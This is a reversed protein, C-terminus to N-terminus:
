LRRLALRAAHLGCMGHVGAGPPTSASCLYLGKCPTAWPHPSLTPRAVFQRWDIVGGTIDGGVYNPNDAEIAAPAMVHRALVVDRFGPAFREIQAEIRETMDVTSRAPVHCYAWLTHRGPPARTPDFLTPQAVLVFPADPHHGRAVAGEAAAVEAFTGGVHVTAARAVAPDTWPVPEALAYDLKFAGPGHRFQMLRRRYRAPLRDGAMAALHRPAVDALVVPSPPLTGLDDVRHDCVVEGGHEGLIAVLADTIAQSGGEALPWGVLHALAGLTLGFGATLPRDFALFSHGALGAFLAAAEPTDFRARALASASRAGAFGFRTLGLPHRPVSLPSLLSDVLPLGVDLFPAMLRRWAPGDAGLGAVTGEVSRHLLVGGAPLVHALPVEPHIWRVGHKELPLERLAPSGVGLPHIASCVDHRFGPETLVATRSGGGPTAAAEFVVVKCGAQAMTVAAVLGNPGSGVVVADYSAATM